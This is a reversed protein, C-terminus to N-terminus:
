LDASMVVSAVVMAAVILEFDPRAALPGASAGAVASTRTDAVAVADAVAIVDEMAVASAGAVGLASAGAVAAVSAGAVFSESDCIRGGSSLSALAGGDKPM